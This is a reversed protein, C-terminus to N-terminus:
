SVEKEGAHTKEAQLTLPKIYIRDSLRLDIYEVPGFQEAWYNLSSLYYTLNEALNSDATMIKVPDGTLQIELSEQDLLKIKRIKARLAPELCDLVQCVRTVKESYNLHWKESDELLPWAEDPLESYSAIIAGEEDILQFNGRRVYLKPIRPFAEVKISSPLIKELRVDKVGPLRILISRLYNLDCVLINGLNQRSLYNEIEQKVRPSASIVEVKKIELQECSIAYYYLGALGAFFVTL